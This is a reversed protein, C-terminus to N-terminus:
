LLIQNRFLDIEEGCNPCEIYDYLEFNKECGYAYYVHAGEKIEAEEYEVFKKCKDCYTVNNTLIKAM